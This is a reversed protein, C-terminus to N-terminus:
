CHGLKYIRYEMWYNSAEKNSLKIGASECRDRFGWYDRSKELIKFIDLPIKM